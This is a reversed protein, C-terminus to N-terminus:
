GKRWNMLELEPIQQYDKTNNTCLKLKHTLATAAILIDYNGSHRGSKYLHAFIDSAAEGVTQDIEFIIRNNVFERFRSEQSKANKAKLGGLIEVITIRSIGVPGYRKEHKDLEEVVEIYGKLCYSLIDTDILITSPM